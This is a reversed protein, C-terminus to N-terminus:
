SGGVPIVLDKPFPSLSHAEGHEDILFTDEGKNKEPDNYLNKLADPGVYQQTFQSGRGGFGRGKPQSAQLHLQAFTVVYKGIPVGDGGQYSTFEFRGEQDCKAFIPTAKQPDSLHEPDNLVVFLRGEATPPQGDVSVRGSFKAVSAKKIGPTNKFYEDAGNQATQGQGCGAVTAALSLVIAIRTLCISARYLMPRM